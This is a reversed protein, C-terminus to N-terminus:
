PFRIRTFRESTGADWRKITPTGGPDTFLQLGSPSLGESVCLSSEYRKEDRSSGQNRSVM